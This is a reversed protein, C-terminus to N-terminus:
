IRFILQENAELSCYGARRNGLLAPDGDVATWPSPPRRLMLVPSLLLNTAFFLSSLTPLYQSFMYSNLLLSFFLTGRGAKMFM